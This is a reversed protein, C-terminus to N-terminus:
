LLNVPTPTVTHDLEFSPLDAAAPVAYDMLSGTMLQGTEADYVVEEMLAQAVGQAIGGHVQGQVLLPSIIRGCDDVAIFRLINVKGTGRDIEVLCVHVGNPFTCNTPEFFSQATLGPEISAPLRRADYAANAIEITTMGREPVGKVSFRGNEFVIDEPAAELLHAAIKKAKDRIKELSMMLAGGGMAIGRSGQTGMKSAMPVRATDGHVVIVDDLGVGLEDAVIQAFTTEQGQGHPS